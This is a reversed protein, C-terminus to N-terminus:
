CQVDATQYIGSVRNEMAETPCDAKERRKSSTVQPPVVTPLTIAPVLTNALMVNAAELM